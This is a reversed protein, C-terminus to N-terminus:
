DRGGAIPPFLSIVNGESLRTHQREELCRYDRGDLLVRYFSRIGGTEPDILELGDGSAEALKRLLSVITGGEEMEIELEERGLAKKIQFFPRVKVKIM